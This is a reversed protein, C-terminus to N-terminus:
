LLNSKKFMSDIEIEMIGHGIEIYVIKLSPGFSIENQGCEYGSLPKTGKKQHFSIKEYNKGRKRNISFLLQRLVFETSNKHM